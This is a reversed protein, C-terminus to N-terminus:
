KLTKSYNWGLVKAVRKSVLHYHLTNARNIAINVDGRYNDIYSQMKERVTRNASNFNAKIRGATAEWGGKPRKMSYTVKGSVARIEAANSTAAMQLDEVSFAHGIGYRNTTGSPHNHTIIANEMKAIEDRTFSVSKKNGDKRLLLNGKADVIAATEYKQRSIEFEIGKLVRETAGSNGGRNGGSTKAM